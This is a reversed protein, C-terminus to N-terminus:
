NPTASHSVHYTFRVWNLADYLNLVPKPLGRTDYYRTQWQGDQWFSIVTLGAISTIDQNMPPDDSFARLVKLARKDLFSEFFGQSAYCVERASTVRGNSSVEGLYLSSGEDDIFATVVLLRNDQRGDLHGRHISLYGRFREACSLADPGPGPALKDVVVKPTGSPANQPHASQPFGALLVCVFGVSTVLTNGM